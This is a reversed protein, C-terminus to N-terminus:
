GLRTSMGIKSRAGVRGSRAGGLGLVGEPSATEDGAPAAVVTDVGLVAQYGVRMRPEIDCIRYAVHAPKEREIVERVRELAGESLGSAGYIQVTFRHAVDDFVPAGFAGGNQLHSREVVATSGVVAGDPEAAALVTTVGLRSGRVPDGDTVSGDPLLWWGGMAIPEEIRADMGTWARLSSRLGERTGRLAYAAFADAIARRKRDPAWEEPLELALWGALWPLWGEPATGPDFYRPLDRILAEVDCYVSEFLSLLAELEPRSREDRLGRPLYDQRRYIAPLHRIYTEPDYSVRIQELRPSTLGESRLRAGLWFYRSRGRILGELGRQPLPRWTTPSFVDSVTAPGEPVTAPDPEVDSEHIYFEIGSGSGPADGIARLEHWAHSRGDVRFPGGWLIGTRAHAGRASLALPSFGPGPHIWLREEDLALAAVPGEYGLADGAPGGDGLVRTVRRRDNDGFYVGRADVAMCLATGPAAGPLTDLVAGDADFVVVDRNTADLVRIGGGSVAVAIPDAVGAGSVRAAFSPVPRGDVDLKQVRRNGREAVYAFGDADVAVSWPSHFSGPSSGLAPQSGPAHGWTGAIRFGVPDILRIRHNGSDAVLLLGRAAHFALGRPQRFSGTGADGAGICPVGEVMGDCAIRFLSHSEPDTFFLEGSPTVAVGAPAHPAPATAIGPPLPAHLAPLTALAVSGDDGMELGYRHPFNSWEDDTNLHLFNGGSDSASM